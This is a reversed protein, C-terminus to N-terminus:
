NFKIIVTKTGEFPEIKIEKRNTVTSSFSDSWHETVISYKGPKNVLFIVEKKEDDKKVGSIKQWKPTYNKNWVRISKFGKYSFSKSEKYEFVLKDKSKSEQAHLSVPILISLLILTTSILQKM